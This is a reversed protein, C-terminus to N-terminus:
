PHRAAGGAQPRARAPRARPADRAKHRAGHERAARGGLRRRAREPGGERGVEEARAGIQTGDLLEEAVRAEGGRLAVRVDVEAPQHVGIVARVRPGSRRAVVMRATRCWPRTTIAPSPCTVTPWVIM